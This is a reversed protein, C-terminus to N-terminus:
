DKFTKRSKLLLSPTTSLAVNRRDSSTNITTPNGQLFLLNRNEGCHEFLSRVFRADYGVPILSVSRSLTCPRLMFSVAKKWTTGLSIPLLAIYGSDKSSGAHSSFFERKLARIKPTNVFNSFRGPATDHKDARGHGVSLWTKRTLIRWIILINLLKWKYETWRMQRNQAQM